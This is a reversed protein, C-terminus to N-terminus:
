SVCARSRMGLSRRAPAVPIISYGRLFTMLRYTVLMNHFHGRPDRRSRCEKPQGRECAAPSSSRLGQRACRYRARRLHGDAPGAALGCPLWAARCGLRVAALGCPLWAARCGLRVAALGRCGLRVAALDSVAQSRRAPSLPSAEAAVGRAGLNSM